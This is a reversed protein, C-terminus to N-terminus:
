RFPLGETRPQWGFILDPHSRACQQAPSLLLTRLSFHSSVPTACQIGAFFACRCHGSKCWCPHLIVYTDLSKPPVPEGRRGPYLLALYSRGQRPPGQGVLDQASFDPQNEGARTRTPKTAPCSPLVQNYERSYPAVDALIAMKNIDPYDEPDVGDLEPHLAAYGAGPLRAFGQDVKIYPDGKRFNTYYDEGPMWSPMTNPIENAQPEFSEHQIFRRLPESYGFAEDLGPGPAMGAGLEKEYYRRSASTM